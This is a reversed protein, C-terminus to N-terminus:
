QIVKLGMEQFKRILEERDMKGERIAQEIGPGFSIAPMGSPMNENKKMSNMIKKEEEFLLLPPWGCNSWLYSHNYMDQLLSVLKDAKKHTVQVGMQSLTDMVLSISEAVSPEGVYSFMKYYWVLQGAANRKKYEAELRSAITVYAPKFRARSQCFGLRWKQYDDLYSFNRLEEGAHDMVKPPETESIKVPGKQVKLNGLYRTLREEEATVPIEQHDLFHEPVYYPVHRNKNDFLSYIYNSERELKPTLEQHSLIRDKPNDKEKSYLESIEYVRFPLSGDRRFVPLIGLFDKQRIKPMEGKDRVQKYVDWAEVAFIAGYLCACSIFFKKLVEITEPSLGTEKYKKALTSAAFPKPYAM